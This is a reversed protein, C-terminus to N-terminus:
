QLFLFKSVSMQRENPMLKKSIHLDLHVKGFNPNQICRSQLSRETESYCIRQYLVFIACTSYFELVFMIDSKVTYIMAGTLSRIATECSEEDPPSSIKPHDKDQCIHIKLM